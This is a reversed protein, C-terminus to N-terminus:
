VADDVNQEHFFTCRMSKRPFAQSNQKASSAPFFVIFDPRCPALLAALLCALLALWGALWAALCGPRVFPLSLGSFVFLSCIVDASFWSSDLPVRWGACKLAALYPNSGHDSCWRENASHLLVRVSPKEFVFVTSLSSGFYFGIRCCCFATFRVRACPWALFCHM